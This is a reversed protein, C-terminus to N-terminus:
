LHPASDLWLEQAVNLPAYKSAMEKTCSFNKAESEKDSGELKTGSVM